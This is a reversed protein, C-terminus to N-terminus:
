CCMQWRSTGKQAMMDEPARRVVPSGYRSAVEAIEDGDTTTLFATLLRSERAARIAHAILPEGGVLRVNKRRVGKSGGRAPIVGLVRM